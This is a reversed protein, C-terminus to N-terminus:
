EESRGKRKRDKKGGEGKRDRRGWEEGEDLKRDDLKQPEM